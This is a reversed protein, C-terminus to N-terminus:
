RPARTMLVVYVRFHPQTASRWNSRKGIVDFLVEAIVERARGAIPADAFQFGFPQRGAVRMAASFDFV